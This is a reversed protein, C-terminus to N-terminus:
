LRWCDGIWVVAGGGVEGSHGLPSEPQDQLTRSSTRRHGCGKNSWTWEGQSTSVARGKGEPSCATGM